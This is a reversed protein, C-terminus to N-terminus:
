KISFEFHIDKDSLKYKDLLETGCSASGIGSNKYDIRIHIHGDKKLENSHNSDMLMQSSYESVNIDMESKTEFILGNKFELLKVKTHNGHEQPRIYDVYESQADSEYMDILSAHHMDCYNEYPGMGYYKFINKEAPTKIEFGLRPLWTCKEKVNGDLAVNIVGNDGVFYKVSYKFYPTRSVGSLSGEVTIIGNEFTCNYVKDFQRDLNEAQWTNYWYWKLKKHRENDTPARMSTIRIPAKLQEEGSKVFSVFTGLDKSFRYCYNEGKSVIFNSDEEFESANKDSKNNKIL